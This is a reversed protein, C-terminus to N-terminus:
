MIQNANENNQYKEKGAMLDAIQEPTMKAIDDASITKEQKVTGDDQQVANYSVHVSNEIINELGTSLAPLQGTGQNNREREETKNYMDNLSKLDTMDHISISSPDVNDLVTNIIDNFKLDLKKSTEKKKKNNAKELGEEINEWNM